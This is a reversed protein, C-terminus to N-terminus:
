VPAVEKTLRIRVPIDPTQYLQMRGKGRQVYAIIFQTGDERTAYLARGPKLKTIRGKSTIGM